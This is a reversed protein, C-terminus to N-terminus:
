LRSFLNLASHQMTVNLVIFFLKYVNEVFPFSCLLCTMMELTALWVLEKPAKLQKRKQYKLSAFLSSMQSKLLQHNAFSTPVPTVEM